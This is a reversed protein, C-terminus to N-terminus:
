ILSDLEAVVGAPATSMLSDLRAAEESRSLSTNSTIALVATFLARAQASANTQKTEALKALFTRTANASTAYKEYLVKNGAPLESAWAAREARLQAKSMNLNAELDYFRWTM